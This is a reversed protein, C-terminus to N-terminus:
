KGIYEVEVRRDPAYCAVKEKWNKIAACKATDKTPQTSGVGSVAYDGKVKTALYDSVAKARRQSLQQNYTANGIADAHGEVSVKTGPQIGTAIKDLEAKGNTTLAAKDFAFLVDAQVVVKKAVPAPLPAPTVVVPAPQPAKAVPPAPPQKAPECGALVDGPNWFGTKVCAGQSDRVPKGDSSVLYNQAAAAFSLTTLIVGLALRM